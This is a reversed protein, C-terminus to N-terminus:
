FELSTLGERVAYKTLEAIGHLGLKDTLHQRYTEVTKVSVGLHSAIYKTPKGEAVLQLVQRERVTLVSLTSFETEPLRSLYERRVLDAVKPSLYTQHAVVCHIAQVLEEFACEKLLYGAAGARLMGVVFQKDSHMSLGLVKIGSVETIIQRTAEIGNLDPMSIDMVVVKPRLKRALRVTTRGDGAEGVVEMDPEKELLNRLGERVIRHDDSLLIRLSM